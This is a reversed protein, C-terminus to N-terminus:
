ATKKKGATYAELEEMTFTVLNRQQELDQKSQDLAEFYDYSEENFSITLEADDKGKFFAKLRELFANNLESVKVKILADM